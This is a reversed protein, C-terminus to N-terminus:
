PHCLRNQLNVKGIFPTHPRSWTQSSFHRMMWLQKLIDPSVEGRAQLFQLSCIPLVLTISRPLDFLFVLPCCLYAPFSSRAIFQSIQLTIWFSPSRLDAWSNHSQVSLRIGRQRLRTAITSRVFRRSLFDNAYSWDPSLWTPRKPPPGTMVTCVNKLATPM